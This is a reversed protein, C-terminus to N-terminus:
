SKASASRRRRFAPRPSILGASTRPCAAVYGAAIAAREAKLDAMLVQHADQDLLIGRREMDWCVAQCERQLLYAPRRTDLTPGLQHALQYCAVADLAAYRFDAGPPLNPASWDGAQEVKSLDLALVEFAAAKLSRRHPGCFLGSMQMTCALPHVPEIGAHRLFKLEFASNHAVLHKPLSRPSIPM